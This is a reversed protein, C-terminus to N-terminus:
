YAETNDLSLPFQLAKGDFTAKGEAFTLRDECLWKIVQPYILHETALVRKALDLEIDAVNIPVVGQLIAPGGDLEPTVFHVTAGAEKDGAELARKHTHLGPYKPLLSPHINIIKGLYSQVFDPTLIRMFGALVLIDPQYQDITAKLEADFAERSDFRSHDLTIADCGYNKARTLGFVEPRNSIVASVRGNIAGSQCNDLITQLNSGGGSILVVIKKM